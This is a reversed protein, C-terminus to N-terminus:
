LGARSSAAARPNSSWLRPTPRTRSPWSEDSRVAKATLLRLVGLQTFRCFM